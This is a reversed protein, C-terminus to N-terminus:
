GIWTCRRSLEIQHGVEKLEHKFTHPMKEHIGMQFGLLVFLFYRILTFRPSLPFFCSEGRGPQNLLSYCLLMEPNFRAMKLTGSHIGFRLSKRFVPGSYKETQPHIQSIASPFHISVAAMSAPTAGLSTLSVLIRSIDRAM